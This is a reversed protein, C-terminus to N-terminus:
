ASVSHKILIYKITVSRDLTKQVIMAENPENQKQGQGYHNVQTIESEQLVFSM